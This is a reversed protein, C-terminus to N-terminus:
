EADRRAMYHIATRLALGALFILTALRIKGDLTFASLLGLGAFAALARQFRQKLNSSDIM